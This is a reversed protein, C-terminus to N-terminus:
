PSLLETLETINGIRELNCVEEIIKDVKWKGLVETALIKFKEWLEEQTMPNEPEGKPFDVRSCYKEGNATRVEVITSWKRPFEKDLSRHIVVTIRKM